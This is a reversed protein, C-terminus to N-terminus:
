AGTAIRGSSIALPSPARVERRAVGIDALADVDVFGDNIPTVLADCEAMDNGCFGTKFRGGEKGLIEASGSQGAGKPGEDM